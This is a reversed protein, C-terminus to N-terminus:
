VSTSPTPTEDQAYPDVYRALNNKDRPHVCARFPETGVDVNTFFVAGLYVFISGVGLFYCVFTELQSPYKPWLIAWDGIRITKRILSYFETDKPTKDANFMESRFYTSTHSRTGDMSLINKAADKWQQKTPEKVFVNSVCYFNHMALLICASMLIWYTLRQQTQCSPPTKSEDVGLTGVADSVGWEQITLMLYFITISNMVVLILRPPCDNRYKYSMKEKGSFFGYENSSSSYKDKKQKDLQPQKKDETSMFLARFGFYLYILLGIFGLIMKYWFNWPYEKVNSLNNSKIRWAM